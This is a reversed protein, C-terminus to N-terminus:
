NYCIDFFIDRGHRCIWAHPHHLGVPLMYVPVIFFSTVPPIAQLVLRVTGKKNGRHLLPVAWIYAFFDATFGRGVAQQRTKRMYPHYGQSCTSSRIRAVKGKECLM